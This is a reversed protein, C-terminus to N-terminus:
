DHATVLPGEKEIGISAKQGEVYPLGTTEDFLLRDIFTIREEPNEGHIDFGHYIIWYDGAKDQIVTNHGTGAVEDSPGIVLDGYTGESMLKGDSGRYKGLLTDSSGAKVRYTSSSGSCCSGQSGLYIWKDDHKFVYSGEYNIDINMGQGGTNDDILWYIHDKINDLGYFLETGDDTLEAAAIGYFSGWILYLQEGDYIAQPDISNQVGTTESDLVMGYHKWPGVPTDGVAVGIGPNSDGWLSLSYYYNYKNGVKIVSPAWVGAEPDGWDLADSHGDFVSGAWTWDVLNESRFIPGRDYAVGKDGMECYTNTCYLYYYGDDGEIVDPDAVTVFYESGDQKHFRMPNSYTGRVYTPESSTSTQEGTGTSESSSGSDGAFQCGTLLLPLLLLLLPKKM